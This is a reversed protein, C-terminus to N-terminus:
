ERGLCFVSKIFHIGVFNPLCITLVTCYFLLFNKLNSLNSGQRCYCNVCGGGAVAPGEGAALAAADNATGCVRVLKVNAQNVM